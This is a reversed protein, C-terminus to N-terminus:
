NTARHHLLLTHTALTATEEEVVNWEFGAGYRGTLYLSLSRSLLLYIKGLFARLWLLLGCLLEPAIIYRGVSVTNM